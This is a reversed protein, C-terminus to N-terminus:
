WNYHSFAKNSEAMRHVADKKKFAEGKQNYADLIERSLKEAMTKAKRERSYKVLWRLALSLKRKPRVEIPVQYTAGGVRRSRVELVPKLNELAEKFVSLGEKGSSEAVNDLANYVIKQAVSKKGGIMMKHVLGGVVEDSYKADLINQFKRYVRKKRSM